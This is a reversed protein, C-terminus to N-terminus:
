AELARWNIKDGPAQLFDDAAEESLSAVRDEDDERRPCFHYIFSEFKVKLACIDFFIM